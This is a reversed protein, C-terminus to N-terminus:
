ASREGDELRPLTLLAALGPVSVACVAVFFWAFGLRAAIEGSLWSALQASLGMIGTSIAYHTTPFGRGQSVRMLVVMYAAFGFGYGFQEFAVVAAVALQGPFAFAAWAYLLNPAHMAIAMPWLWRRLGGRAILVGGLIGGALLMAVGITGSYLGVERADLGMGGKEPTALLFPSAMTTLMSEGFRYLLVFALIGLIGPRAFYSRAAAVVSETRPEGRADEAPRPLAVFHWALGAAYVAAAAGFALGWARALPTGQKELTGALYVVGGTVFIRGLRFCTNRIGVFAAQAPTPLALLYFGDAAIDHTASLVAIGGCAALTWAVVQSRTAAFALLAIALVLLAQMALTWARKTSVLDVLPSWLPKLTWPLLLLAASRGITEVPVSLLAFFTSPATTVLFYPIAQLFYLTPVFLWPSRAGGRAEEAM